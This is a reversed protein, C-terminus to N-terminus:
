NSNKHDTAYLKDLETRYIEMQKSLEDIAFKTIAAKDLVRVHETYMHLLMLLTIICHALNVQTTSYVSVISAFILWIVFAAKTTVTNNKLINKVRKM